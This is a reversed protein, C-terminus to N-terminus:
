FNHIMTVFAELRIVWQKATCPKSAPHATGNITLEACILRHLESQRLVFEVVLTVIILWDFITYCYFSAAKNWNVSNRFSESFKRYTHNSLELILAFNRYTMQREHLLLILLATKYELPQPQCWASASETNKRNPM